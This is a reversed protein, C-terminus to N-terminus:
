SAIGLLGVVAVVLTLGGCIGAAWAGLREMREVAQRDHELDAVLQARIRSCAQAVTLDATV